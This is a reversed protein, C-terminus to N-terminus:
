DKLAVTNIKTQNQFNMSGVTESQISYSFPLTESKENQKRYANASSVWIKNAALFLCVFFFCM